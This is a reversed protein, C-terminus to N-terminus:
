VRVNKWRGGAFRALFFGGRLTLDAFMALWAGWLGLRLGPLRGLPGLDLGGTTFLYALPIRVGLFGTWTFLLPVRTDGAGRLAYTLIFCCASPPMAFAVLRLVPVGLAVAEHQEPNPCFLRFMPPALTFFVAGMLSMWAGGIGLAVWGSRAAQAPQRAGLSQGVLTMAATGFAIGSLYGLAEWTLAIGHATSATDGLRNVVSLFWLQGTVLSLGDLGAPVSVRLIRFLLSPDPRFLRPALRLGARGRALVSLVALAGFTESLATGWAIGEFGLAPLPGAGHYLGWALPLNVVAVATKVWLGTRTDGAGVLCAIGANEVVQFVLLLFIPRLYASAFGFAPGRLQLLGILGEVGARGVVTGLLGMTAALLLTQHTVRAAGARDGAGIFRATLATGGVSVLYSYCTIFWGLYTATTQASQYATHQSPDPPRFHGALFRDSLTVSFILLQQLLVPWALFLVLRWTASTQRERVAASPLVEFPAENM